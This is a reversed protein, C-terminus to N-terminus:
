FYGFRYGMFVGVIALGGLIVTSIPTYSCISKYGIRNQKSADDNPVLTAAATGTWTLILLILVWRIIVTRNM